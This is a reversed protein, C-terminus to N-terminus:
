SRELFEAETDSIDATLTKALEPQKEVIQTAARRAEVIIESDTLVDLLRTDQEYGSQSEGMVQGISRYRLDLEALKAGDNTKAIEQLRHWAPTNQEVDTVFFCIGARNGRGIRGRLQHLQSIGFGNANMIVMVTAEPVDVGVEIITTSVLMDIDGRRLASMAADKEEPKLRGHIAAIGRDPFRTQMRATVDVLSDKGEDIRPVVVFVRGGATMEEDVRQWMRREWVTNWEPVVASQIPQRTGPRQTLTSVDLDGFATMAITRPIPTATMVLVHPTLGDRGRDRLKDRQRVGFRHQEDIVVLGLDFFEVTDSILAHTGVVIGAQGSVIELLAQRKEPVSMSGTLLTVDVGYIRLTAAHQAALVETPALMACQRGADTVQLMALLAVVTKGSGVEGQLLRSMPQTRQLDASIEAVVAKQGDTLAFPLNLRTEPNPLAPCQPATRANSSARRLALELQMELAEDFKLREVARQYEAEDAPFHIARLAADFDCDHPLPDAQPALWTIVRHMHMALVLSPMGKGTRPYMPVVPRQLLETVASKDSGSRLMTEFIGTGIVPTGDDSLLLMASAGVQYTGGWETAKGAVILSRGPRLRDVFWRQGFAKITFGGTTGITAPRHDKPNDPKNVSTVTTFVTINQGLDAPNFGADDGGFRYENPFITLLEGVTHVGRKSALEKAQKATLVDALPTRATKSSM